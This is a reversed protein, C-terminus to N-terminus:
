RYSARREEIPDKGPLDGDPTWGTVKSPEPPDSPNPKYGKGPTSDNPNMSGTNIDLTLKINKKIWQAQKDKQIQCNVKIYKDIWDLVVNAFVITTVARMIISNFGVKGWPDRWNLPDNGVYRFINPDGADFKIPDM